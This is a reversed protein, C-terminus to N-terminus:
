SYVHTQFSSIIGACGSCVVGSMALGCFGFWKIKGTLSVLVATSLNPISVRGKGVVFSPIFGCVVVYLGGATCLFYYRGGRRLMAPPMGAVPAM